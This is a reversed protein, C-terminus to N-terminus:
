RKQEGIWRLVRERDDPRMRDLRVARVDDGSARVVAGPDGQLVLTAERRGVAAVGATFPPFADVLLAVRDRARLPVLRPAADLM